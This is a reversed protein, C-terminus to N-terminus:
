LEREESVRRAAIHAIRESVHYAAVLEGVTECGHRHPVLVAAAFENARREERYHLAGETSYHHLFRESAQVGDPSFFLHYFEHWFIEAEPIGANTNIVITRLPVQRCLGCVRIAEGPRALSELYVPRRLWRRLAFGGEKGAPGATRVLMVGTAQAIDDLRWGAFRERIAAATTQISDRPM